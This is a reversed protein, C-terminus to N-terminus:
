RRPLHSSFPLRCLTITLRDAIAASVKKPPFPSRFTGANQLRCRHDSRAPNMEGGVSYYRINPDPNLCYFSLADIATETIVLRNDTEFTDSFWLGKTGGPVFGTLHHNQRLGRGRRTAVGPVFLVITFGSSVLMCPVKM